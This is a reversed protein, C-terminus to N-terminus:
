AVGASIIAIVSAIRATRGTRLLGARSGATMGAGSREMATTGDTLAKGGWGFIAAVGASIIAIVSAIRATRGTRLLGARSGATMGAGSREMATTGGTTAKGASGFIAAVGASIIAIVSAIRATRGTRLFGARSGATMGAGSREMATTGDTTAKGASGFIAAVGASIIAIVSAIRARRGTRM